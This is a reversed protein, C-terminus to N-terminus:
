SVRRVCSEPRSAPSAHNRDPLTVGHSTKDWYFPQRVVERLAKLISVTALPYYFHMVPLWPTLDTRGQRQLALVGAAVNVVLIAGFGLAACVQGVPSAMAAFPHPLGLPILWFSWLIPAFLASALSGLILIQLGVFGWAGLDAWVARPARMQSAWTVAYGKQWRSRQRIWAVPSASAEELTVTDVLDTVYGARALRIGLDADETVNHADWAGVEELAERRFFVTTGGLPVPWGLRRLTPLVVWFWTAYDIAFCRTIWNFRSNYFNLRGQLCAVKPDSRAFREVVDRIQRPAPEDEADYIGVISGRCFDLAMNMARPKTRIEGAGVSLTRVWPPLDAETIARATVEDDSETVLIVDMLERPYDIRAIRSMLEAAVDSERHLPLLISVTPRRALVPGAGHDAAPGPGRLTFVFATALVATNVLAVMLATACIATVFLGPDAAAAAALTLVCAAAAMRLRRGTLSRCSARSPCRTEAGAALLPAAHRQIATDIASATAAAPAVPGLRDVIEARVADFRDPRTTAVPVLGGVNRLPVIQRAACYGPGLRRIAVPDADALDPDAVTCGVIGALTRAMDPASVLDHSLLIDPLTAANRRERDEAWALTAPDVLRQRLLARPLARRTTSHVLRLASGRASRSQEM